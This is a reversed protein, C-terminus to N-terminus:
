LHRRPPLLTNGVILGGVLAVLLIAVDLATERPNPAGTLLVNSVARYGLAGPVLLIIGPVRVLSAPRHLLRGIANGLVAVVLAALLVGMTVGGFITGVRSAGYGVGAALVAIAIDKTRVSFLVAFTLSAAGLAAWTAWPPPAALADGVASVNWGLWGAVATGIMAGLALKFLTILAGALRASGSSLHDTSLETVAVALALGPMLWSLAAVVAEAVGVAVLHHDIFSVLLTVAFAVIVELGGGTLARPPNVFLMAALLGAAAATAVGPWASGLLVAVAGSLVGGCFVQLWAPYRMRPPRAKLLRHAAEPDVRGELLDEALEYLDATEALNTSGPALRIIQMPLQPEDEDEEGHQLSLMIATPSSWIDCRWGLNEAMATVTGELQHAPVGAEHLRRAFRRLFRVAPPLPQSM